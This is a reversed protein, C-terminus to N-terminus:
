YQYLQIQEEPSGRSLIDLIYNIPEWRHIAEVYLPHFWGILPNPKYRLMNEWYYRSLRCYESYTQDLWIKFGNVAAKEQRRKEYEKFDIKQGPSLDLGLGFDNNIKKVADISSLEFLEMVLDIVSGGAGCSFCHFYHDKFSMSPNNDPHFLCLAKNQNNVELGYTEAVEVIDTNDKVYEFPDLFM